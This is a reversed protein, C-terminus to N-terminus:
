TVATGALLLGQDGHQEVLPGVPASEPVQEPELGHLAASLSEHNPHLRRQVSVVLAHVNPEDGGFHHM